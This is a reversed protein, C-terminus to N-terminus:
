CKIRLNGFFEISYFFLSNHNGWFAWSNGTQRIRVFRNYENVQQVEFNAIIKQGNLKPCDEHHDIEIWNNGDNSVEISWNKLHHYNAESNSSQISYSTLQIEKDKFDFCVFANGDDKSAYGNNKEYEILNRPHYKLPDLVSNSTIKIMENELKKENTSILYNIIGDLENSGKQYQFNINQFQTLYRLNECQQKQKSEPSLFRQRISEWISNNIDSLSFSSIFLEFTEKQVNQFIVNEFLPSYKNDEEYLTILFKLLSDEEQLQLSENSIIEEIIEIDLEKIKNKNIFDFNKAIFSILQKINSSIKSKLQSDTDNFNMTLLETMQILLDISNEITLEESYEPLIRFYEDINGLKLFYKSYYKKKIPDVKSKTFRSLNLFDHFYDDENNDKNNISFSFENITEDTFHYQRIIPSLLDAVFRNTKYEKGNVLFTFDSTYKHLPINKLNRSDLAFEIIENM